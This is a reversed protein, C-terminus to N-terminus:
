MQADVIDLIYKTLSKGQEKAKKKYEDAKEKPVVLRITLKDAMYKDVSRKQAETYKAM